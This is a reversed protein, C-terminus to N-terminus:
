KWPYGTFDVSASCHGCRTCRPQYPHDDWRHGFFRCILKRIMKQGLFRRKDIMHGVPRIKLLLRENKRIRIVKVQAEDSSDGIPAAIM